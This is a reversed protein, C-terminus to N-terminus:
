GHRLHGIVPRSFPSLGFLTITTIAFATDNQPKSPPSVAIATGGCIATGIGILIGLKQSVGVRRALWITLVLALIFCITSYCGRSVHARLQFRTEGM